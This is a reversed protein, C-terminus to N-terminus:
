TKVQRGDGATDSATSALTANTAYSASLSFSESREFSTDAETTINVRVLISADKLETGADDATFLHRANRILLTRAAATM